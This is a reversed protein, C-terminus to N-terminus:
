GCGGFFASRDGPFCSSETSCVLVINLAFLYKIAIAKAIQFAKGGDSHWVCARADKLCLTFQSM